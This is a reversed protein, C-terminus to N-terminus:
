AALSKQQFSVTDFLTKNSLGQRGCSKILTATTSHKRKIHFMLKYLGNETRKTYLNPENKLLLKLKIFDARKSINYSMLFFMEEGLTEIDTHVLNPLFLLSPNNLVYCAIFSTYNSTKVISQM